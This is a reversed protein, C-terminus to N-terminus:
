QSHIENCNLLPQRALTPRRDFFVYVWPTGLTPGVALAKGNTSFSAFRSNNEGIAQPHLKARRKWLFNSAICRRFIQISGKDDDGPVSVFLTNGDASIRVSSGFEDQAEGDSATLKDERPWTTGNGRVFTYVSGSKGNREETAGVVLINGDANLSVSIGFNDGDTSSDLFGSDILRQYPWTAGNRVFVYSSGTNRAREGALSNGPAGIALTNGDASLSVSYGFKMVKWASTPAILRSQRIWTIGNRVFLHVIGINSQYPAGIALTNGDASLSVSHGFRDWRTGNLATLISQQTWTVGSRTFIYVSGPHNSNNDLTGLTGIAGIALTNGDASISVSGGFLDNSTGNSAFLQAQFNWSVGSRVFVYVSGSFDGNDDRFPAGVVLTKGDASISVSCGFCDDFANGNSREIIKFSSSENLEASASSIIFTM